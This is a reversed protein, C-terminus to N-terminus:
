WSNTTPVAWRSDVSGLAMDCHSSKPKVGLCAAASTTRTMLTTMAPTLVESSTTDRIGVKFAQGLTQVTVWQKHLPLGEVRRM